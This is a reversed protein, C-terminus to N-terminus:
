ILHEGGDVFIVQGTVYDNALLFKVTDTVHEVDGKRKLPIGAARSRLYRPGKGEPPLIFGPAVANVRVNPAFEIATMGVLSELAKKSLLYAAFSTKNTTVRTDLFHVISGKQVDKVFSAGLVWSARVHINLHEDLLPLADEGFGSPEFLSASHILANLGPFPKLADRVLRSAEAPKELAAPFCVCRRGLSRIEAATKNAEDVSHHYHLAIDWGDDALALAVARGIRRAGGTVLAAPALAQKKM